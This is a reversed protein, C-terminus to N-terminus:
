KSDIDFHNCSLNEPNDSNDKSSAIVHDFCLPVYIQSLDIRAKLYRDPAGSGGVRIGGIGDRSVLSLAFLSTVVIQLKAPTNEEKFPAFFVLLSFVDLCFPLDNVSPSTCASRTLTPPDKCRISLQYLKM